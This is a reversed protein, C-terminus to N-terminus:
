PKGAAAWQYFHEFGHRRRMVARESTEDIQMHRYTSSEQHQVQVGAFRRVKYGAKTCRISWDQDHLRYNLDRDDLPGVATWVATSVLVCSWWSEEFIGILGPKDVPSLLGMMHDENYIQLLFKDWGFPVTIDNNVIFMHDGVAMDTGINVARAYGVPEPLHLYRFPLSESLDICQPGQEVVVLQYPLVTNERISRLCTQLLTQVEPVPCYTPIIISNM